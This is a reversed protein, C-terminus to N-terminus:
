QTCWHLHLHMGFKENMFKTEYFGSWHNVTIAKPSYKNWNPGGLVM